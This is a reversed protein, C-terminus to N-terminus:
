STATRPQGDTWDCAYACVWTRGHERLANGELSGGLEQNATAADRTLPAREVATARADRLLRHLRTPHHVVLM